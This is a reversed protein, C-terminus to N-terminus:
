PGQSRYSQSLLPLFEPARAILDLTVAATFAQLGLGVSRAMQDALFQPYPELLEPSAVQHAIGQLVRALAPHRPTRAISAKVELRLAPGWSWPKVYTVWISGQRLPAILANLVALWRERNPFTHAAITLHLDAWLARERESQGTPVPRTYEGGALLLTFVTRNDLALFPGAPVRDLWAEVLDRAADYKVLGVIRPDCVAARLSKLARHQRMLDYVIATLPGDLLSLASNLGIVPSLHSGDLIVLDHPAERAIRCEALTMAGRCLRKVDDGTHPLAQQWHVFQVGPWYSPGGALGEVGVAVALALDIGLSQEVAYAGDVAAVSPLPVDPLDALRCIQGDDILTRRLQERRRQVEEFASALAGTTTPVGTLIAALLEDPLYAHTAESSGPREPLASRLV